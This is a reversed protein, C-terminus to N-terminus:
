SLTDFKIFAVECQHWIRCDWPYMNVFRKFIIERIFTPLPFSKFIICLYAHVNRRCKSQGLYTAITPIITLGDSCCVGFLTSTSASLMTRELPDCEQSRLEVTSCGFYQCWSFDFQRYLFSVEQLRQLLLSYYRLCCLKYGRQSVTHQTLSMHVSWEKWGRRWPQRWAWHLRPMIGPCQGLAM